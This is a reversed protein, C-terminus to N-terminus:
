NSGEWREIKDRLALAEDRQATFAELLRTNAQVDATNILRNMEQMYVHLVNYALFDIEQETLEM